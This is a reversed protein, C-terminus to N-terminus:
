INKSIIQILEHFIKPNAAIIDGKFLYDENGFFDGVLGGAEAVILSGAAIDWPKLGFEFFGDTRGCAVNCLDLTAAGPRRLGASTKCLNRFINLYQELNSFDRYPFGTGILSRSLHTAKGVRIRRNNLFAGAGKTATFLENNNPDFVVAFITTEDKRIAISVAYNPLGHIFNTTGDLPDIIWQYNAAEDSNNNKESKESKEAKESKESKESKENESDVGLIEGSEEALINHSPYYKRIIDIITKEALKDVITVFDNQNKKEIQLDIYQLQNAAKNILNGAAVAAKVAINLMAPLRRSDENHQLNQSGQLSQFHENNAFAFKDAFHKKRQNRSKYPKKHQQNQNQSQNQSDKIVKAKSINFKM